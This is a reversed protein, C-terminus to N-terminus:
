ISTKASLWKRWLEENVMKNLFRVFLGSKRLPNRRM